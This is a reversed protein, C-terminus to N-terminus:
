EFAKINLYFERELLIFKRIIQLITEVLKHVEYIHLETTQTGFPIVKAFSILNFHSYRNKTTRKTFVSILNNRLKVTAQKIMAM